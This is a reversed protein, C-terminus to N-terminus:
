KKKQKKKKQNETFDRSHRVWPFFVVYGNVNVIAM